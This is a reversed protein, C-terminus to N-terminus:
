PVPHQFNRRFTTMFISAASQEHESEYTHHELQVNM